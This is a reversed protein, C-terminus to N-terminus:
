CMRRATNDWCLMGEKPSTIDAPDGRHVTLLADLGIAGDYCRNIIHIDLGGNGHRKLVDTAGTNDWCLMGEKPSTIDAPDGRHM